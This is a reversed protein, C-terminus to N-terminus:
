PKKREIKNEDDKEGVTNKLNKNSEKVNKLEEQLNNVKEKISNAKIKHM